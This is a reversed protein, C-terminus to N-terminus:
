GTKDVQYFGVIQDTPPGHDELVARGCLAHLGNPPERQHGDDGGQMSPPPHFIERKDKGM